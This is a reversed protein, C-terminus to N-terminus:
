HNPLCAYRSRRSPIFLQRNSQTWGTDVASQHKTPIVTRLSMVPEVSSRHAAPHLYMGFHYSPDFNSTCDSFCSNSNNNNNQNLLDTIRHDRYWNVPTRYCSLFLLPIPVKIFAGNRLKRTGACQATGLRMLQGWCQFLQGLLGTYLAM